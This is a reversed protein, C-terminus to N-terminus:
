KQPVGRERERKPTNITSFSIFGISLFLDARLRGVVRSGNWCTVRGFARACLAKERERKLTNITSFRIFGISLIFGSKVALM